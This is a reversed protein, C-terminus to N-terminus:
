PLYLSFAMNPCPAFAGDRGCVHWCADVEWPWASHSPVFAIVSSLVGITAAKQTIVWGPGTDMDEAFWLNNGSSIGAQRYAAHNGWVGSQEYLGNLAKATSLRIGHCRVFPPAPVAMPHNSELCQTQAAFQALWQPAFALLVSFNARGACLAVCSRQYPRERQALCSRKGFLHRRSPNSSTLAEFWLVTSQLSWMVFTNQPSNKDFGVPHLTCPPNSSYFLATTACEGPIRKLRSDHQQMQTWVATSYRNHSCSFVSPKVTPQVVPTANVVEDVFAM